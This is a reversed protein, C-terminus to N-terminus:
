RFVVEDVDRWAVYRPKRNDSFVLLGDNRRSVDQGEELEVTLGSRLEVDSRRVSTPKIRAIERFPILYETSGMKGQLLEFDWAEDLDFVIRGTYRDGRTAVAGTLEHGAGYEAYGRGTNPAPRFTM